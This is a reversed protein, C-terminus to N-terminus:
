ARAREADVEHEGDRGSQQQKEENSMQGDVRRCASQWRINLVEFEVIDRREPVFERRDDAFNLFCTPRRTISRLGSDLTHQELSCISSRKILALSSFFSVKRSYKRDGDSTGNRRSSKSM